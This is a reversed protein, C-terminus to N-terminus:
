LDKGPGDGAFTNTRGGAVEEAPVSAILVPALSAILIATVRFFSFRRLGCGTFRPDLCTKPLGLSGTRNLATM